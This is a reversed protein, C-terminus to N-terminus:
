ILPIFHITISPGNPADRREYKETSKGASKWYTRIGALSRRISDNWHGLNRFRSLDADPESPKIDRIIPADIEIIKLGAAKYFFDALSPLSRSFERHTRAM